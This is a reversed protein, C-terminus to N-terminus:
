AMRYLYVVYHFRLFILSWWYWSDIPVKDFFPHQVKCFKKKLRLFMKIYLFLVHEVLIYLSFSCFFIIVKIQSNTFNLQKRKIRNNIKNGKIQEAQKILMIHNNRPVDNYQPVVKPKSRYTFWYIHRAVMTCCVYYM